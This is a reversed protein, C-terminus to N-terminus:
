FGENIYNWFDDLIDPDVDPNTPGCTRDSTIPWQALYWVTRDLFVNDAALRLEQASTLDNFFAEGIIWGESSYGFGDLIQDAMYFRTYANEYLHVDMLYPWGHSGWQSPDYVDDTQYVRSVDSAIDVSFGVTDLKGFTFVYYNWLRQAYQLLGHEDSTPIGENMLDIRYPLGVIGAIISRLNFILNWNDQFVVEYSLTGGPVIDAWNSIHVKWKKPRHVGEPFFGIEVESFGIDRIKVLLDKLNQRHQSSLNGGTSDM